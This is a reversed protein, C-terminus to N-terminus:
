AAALMRNVGAVTKPSYEIDNRDFCNAVADIRAMVKQVKVAVPKAFRDFTLRDVAIEALLAPYFLRVVKAGIDRVLFGREGCGVKPDDVYLRVALGEVPSPESVGKRLIEADSRKAELARAAALNREAETLVAVPALASIREVAKSVKISSLAPLKYRAVGADTVQLMRVDAMRVVDGRKVMNALYKAHVFELGSRATVTLKGGLWARVDDDIVYDLKGDASWVRVRQGDKEIRYEPDPNSTKTTFKAM